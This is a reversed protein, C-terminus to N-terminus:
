HRLGERARATKIIWATLHHRNQSENVTIAGLKNILKIERCKKTM